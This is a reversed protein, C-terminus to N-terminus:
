MFLGKWCYIASLKPLFTLQVVKIRVPENREQVHLYAQM